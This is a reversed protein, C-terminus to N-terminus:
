RIRNVILNYLALNSVNKITLKDDTLYARIDQGEIAKVHREVLYFFSIQDLTPTVGIDTSKLGFALDFTSAGSIMDAWETATLNQLTLKSNGATHINALDEEIWQAGDWKKWTTRGDNSILIRIQTNTPETSEIQMSVVSQWNTIDLSNTLTHVYFGAETPYRVGGQIEQHDIDTQSFGNSIFQVVLDLTDGPSMEARFSSIQQRFEAETNYEEGGFPARWSGSSYIKVAGNHVVGYRLNSPYAPDEITPDDVQLDAVQPFILDQPVFPMTIGATRKIVPMSTSFPALGKIIMDEIETQTYGDSELFVKFNLTDTEVVALNAIGTIFEAPTNRENASVTQWFTGNWFREQGNRILVLKASGQLINSLFSLRGSTFYDHSITVNSALQISPNDQAYPLNIDLKMEGLSVQTFGDSKLYANFNIEDNASLPLNTIGTQFEAYDNRHTEQSVDLWQQGVGDYYREVGNLMLTFKIESDPPSQNLGSASFVLRGADLNIPTQYNDTKKVKPSGPSYDVAVSIKAQSLSVATLGDSVLFTVFNITDGSALSLSQIGSQFGAYTNMKGPDPPFSGPDQPVGSDSWASGTWYKYIDNHKLLFRLNATDSAGAVAFNLIGAPMNFAATADATLFVHPKLNSYDMSSVIQANEVTTQETGDSDMFMLFNINDGSSLGLAQIGTQFHAASSREGPPPPFLAPNQETLDVWVSGTDNWYKYTGNLKLVFSVNAPFQAITYNFDLFGPSIDDQVTTDSQRTTFPISRIFNLISFIRLKDIAVQNEGDSELYAVVNIDDNTVLSLNQIGTQFDAITNRESAQTSNTWTAGTWYKEVSNLMLTLRINNTDTGPEIDSEFDLEGVAYDAGIQIDNTNKISFTGPTYAFQSDISAEDISVLQQGDSILFVEFNLTDGTSAILAEIGTKFETFINTETGIDIPETCNQWSAGTWYQRQGNYILCYKVTGVVTGESFSLQGADIDNGLTHPTGLKISPGDPDYILASTIEVKDVSIQKTGASLIFTKVNVIDGNNFKDNPLGVLSDLGTEFDTKTNTHALDLSQTTPAYTDSAKIHDHFLTCVQNYSNLYVMIEGNIWNSNNGLPFEGGADSYVISSDLIVEEIPTQGNGSKTRNVKLILTHWMNQTITTGVVRRFGGVTTYLGDGLVVVNCTQGTNGSHSMCLVISYGDLENLGGGPLTPHPSSLFDQKFKIEIYFYGTGSFTGIDRRIWSSTNFGFTNTRHRICTFGDETINPVPNADGGLTWGILNDGLLNDNGGVDADLDFIPSGLYTVLEPANEWQAGGWYKNLGNYILQFRFDGDVIGQGGPYELLFGLDGPNYDRPLTVPTNLRIDFDGIPYGLTTLIKVDNIATQIDGDSKLYAVVNLDDGDTLALNQIGTTFDALSNIESNDIQDPSQQTTSQWSGSYHKYTSNHKLVFGLDDTNIGGTPATTGLAWHDVMFGCTRGTPNPMFLATFGDAVLTSTDWMTNAIPGSKQVGDVWIGLIATGGAPADLDYDIRWRHWYQADYTWDPAYDFWNESGAIKAYTQSAVDGIIVWVGKEAGGRIQIIPRYSNGGYEKVPYFVLANQSVTGPNVLYLDMVWYLTSVGAYAGVDKELGMANTGSNAFKHVIKGDGPDHGQTTIGSFTSWPPATTLEGAAGELNSGSGGIMNFDAGALVDESYNAEFNLDGVIFDTPAQIDAALEIHRFNLPYTANLKILARDIATRTDEDSRLYTLINLTDNKSVALNQIGAQL